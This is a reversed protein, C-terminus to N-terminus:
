APHESSTPPAPLEARLAAVTQSRAATAAAPSTTPDALVSALAAIHEHASHLQYSGLSGHIAHVTRPLDELSSGELSVISQRLVSVQNERIFAMVADSEGAIDPSETM